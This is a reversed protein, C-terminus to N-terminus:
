CSKGRFFEDFADQAIQSVLQKKIKKRDKNKRQEKNLAVTPLLGFNINSPAPRQATMIYNILAGIATQM